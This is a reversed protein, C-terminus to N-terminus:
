YGLPYVAQWHKGADFDYLDLSHEQIYEMDEKTLSTTNGAKDHHAFILNGVLMPQRLEDVASVIPKDRFLGMDDCFIDFYKDGVKRHTIDFCDCKLYKYYDDLKGCVVEKFGEDNIVDLALLRVPRTM